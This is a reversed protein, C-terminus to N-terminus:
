APVAVGDLSCRGADADVTAFLHLEVTDAPASYVAQVAIRTYGAIAAPGGTQLTAGAPMDIQLNGTFDVPGPNSPDPGSDATVTEHLTAAEASRAAFNLTITGASQDCSASLTLGDIDLATLPNPTGSAAQSYRVPVAGPGRPGTEGKPGAPGQAARRELQDLLRPSLSHKKVSGPALKSAEVSRGRLQGTDVSGDALKSHTVAHERLQQAGVSDRPLSVAAYSAGGLAVFLALSAIVNAYSLRARIEGPIRRSPPLSM